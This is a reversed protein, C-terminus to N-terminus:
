QKPEYFLEVIQKQLAAEDPHFEVHQEGLKSEGKIEIINGADYKSIFQSIRELQAITCDSIMYESLKLGMKSIFTSDKEVTDSLKTYLADLYQRQRKMRSINTEDGVSDRSRVYSLAQEGNLLVTEGKKHESEDWKFDELLTVEIGDLMDNLESVADMTLSIYHNIPTEYLFDSVAEVTNRCSDKKGSGYSYSLALQATKTGISEGDLGLINIQGMSDRNIQLTTVTDDDRDLVLLTLFDAQMDNNYSDPSADAEFKDLGMILITQINDRFQYEKGEYTITKDAAAGFDDWLSDGQQEKWWHFLLLTLLIVVLSIAIAAVTRRSRLTNARRDKM